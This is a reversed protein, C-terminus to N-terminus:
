FDQYNKVGDYVHENNVKLHIKLPDDGDFVYKFPYKIAGKTSICIELNIHCAFMQLLHTNYPVVWSYDVTFNKFPRSGEDILTRRVDEEAGQGPFRRKITVFYQEEVEEGIGTEERYQKPLRRKSCDDDMSIANQNQYGCPGHNFHALVLKRTIPDYQPPIEASILHDVHETDLM